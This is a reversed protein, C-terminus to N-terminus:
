SMRRLPRCTLEASMDLDLMASSVTTSELDLHTSSSLPLFLFLSYSANRKFGHRRQVFPGRIDICEPVGSSGDSWGLGM